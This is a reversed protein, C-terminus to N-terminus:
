RAMPRSDSGLCRVLDSWMRGGYLAPSITYWKSYSSIECDGPKRSAHRIITPCAFIIIGGHVHRVTHTYILIIHESKLQYSGFLRFLELLDLWDNCKPRSTQVNGNGLHFKIIFFLVSPFLSWPETKDGPSGVFDSDGLWALSLWLVTMLRVGSIHKVPGIQHDHDRETQSLKLEWIAQMFEFSSPSM